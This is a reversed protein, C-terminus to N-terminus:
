AGPRARRQIVSSSGSRAPRAEGSGETSSMRFQGNLLAGEHIVYTPAFVDASVRGQPLAEFRETARITGGILGAVIVRRADITADVEAGQAIWVDDKARLTGEVRGYVHISNESDMDGKWTTETAVVSIRSDVSPIEPLDPVSVDDEPYSAQSTQVPYSGFSYAGADAAGSADQGRYDDSSGYRDDDVPANGSNADDQEDDATGGLQQRLASMQRQFSDVKNDRRFVM